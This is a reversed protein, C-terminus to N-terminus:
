CSPSSLRRMWCTSSITSSWRRRSSRVPRAPAELATVDTLGLAEGIAPAVFAYDRIAALSVFVVRASAEATIGHAIQLALRTKGVGGPGVLTILRTAPEGLWQRLTRLDSERGVLATLPLPPPMSRAAGAAVVPVRAAAFRHDRAVSTLDVAACLARVTDLQPAAERLAKLQAGFPRSAAQPM